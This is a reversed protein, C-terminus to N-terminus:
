SLVEVPDGVRVTGPRVVSCYVGLHNPFERNLDTMADFLGAQRDLGPQARLPMACRVTPADVTLVVEGVQLRRGVWAQEGFMETVGSEVVLNPRFRRVDWDLDPRAAACSRLTGATLLHLPALDLFTGPPAPISYLEADDDPPDFTMQYEVNTSPASEALHFAGGLWESLAARTTEDDVLAVRGGDPLVIHRGDVSAALLVSYRKASALRGDADDIVAWRRDGLVGQAAIQLDDVEHGQLSKVPYRWCATVGMNLADDHV